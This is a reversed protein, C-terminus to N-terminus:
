FVSNMKTYYCKEFGIVVGDSTIHTKKGGILERATKDDCVSDFITSSKRGSHLLTVSEFVFLYM